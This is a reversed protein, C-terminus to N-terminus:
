GKVVLSAEVHHQYRWSLITRLVNASYALAFSTLIVIVLSIVFNVLVYDTLKWFLYSHLLYMELLCGSLFGLPSFLKKQLQVNKFWLVTVICLTIILFRNFNRLELAINLGLIIVSIIAILSGTLTVPVFLNTRQVFIGFIFSWSTLWLEHGMPFHLLLLNQGVLTAVTFITFIVRSNAIIRLGPYLAYFILILTLFWMGAGYPSPNEMGFWTLFGKVGVWSTITQWSWIGERDQIIFLVLLFLNIAVLDPALRSLKRWWFHSLKLQRHYKLSTFYGSAFGFLFLAVTAAIWDGPLPLDHAACVTLIALVKGVSFNFSVDPATDPTERKLEVTEM